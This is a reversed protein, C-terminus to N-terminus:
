MGMEAIERRVWAGKLLMEQEVQKLSAAIIEHSITLLRLTRGKWNAMELKM